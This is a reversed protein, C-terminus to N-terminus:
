ESLYKPDFRVCLKNSEEQSALIDLIMERQVGASFMWYSNTADREEKVVQKTVLLRNGPCPIKSAIKQPREDNENM